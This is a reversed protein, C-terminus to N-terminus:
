LEGGAQTLSLWAEVLSDPGLPLAGVEILWSAAGPMDRAAITWVIAGGRHAEAFGRKRAAAKFTPGATRPVYAKIPVAPGEGIEFPLLQYDTVDFDTPIEYPAFDERVTARKARALNLTRMADSQGERSRLGVVYISSALEFIGFVRILRSTPRSDSLAQYSLECPLRRQFAEHVADMVARDCVHAERKIAPSIDRGIRAVAAGLASPDATAPDTVLPQMILALMRASDDDLESLDAITRKRDLTWTKSTGHTEEALYVGEAELSDRDRKFTKPFSSPSVDQYYRGLIDQTSIRKGRALDLVLQMRQADRHGLRKTGSRGAM